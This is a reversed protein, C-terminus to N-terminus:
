KGRGTDKPGIDKAWDPSSTPVPDHGGSKRADSIYDQRATREAENKSPQVKTGSDGFIDKM